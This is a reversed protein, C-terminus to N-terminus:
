RVGRVDRRPMRHVSVWRAGHVGVANATCSTRARPRRLQGLHAHQHSSVESAKRAAAPACAELLRSRMRARSKAASTPSCARADLPSDPRPACLGTCLREARCTRALMGAAHRCSSWQSNKHFPPAATLRSLLTRPHQEHRDIRPNSANTRELSLRHSTAKKPGVAAGFGQVRWACWAAVHGILGVVGALSALGVLASIDEVRLAPAEVGRCQLGAVDHPKELMRPEPGLAVVRQPRPEGEVSIGGPASPSTVQGSGVARGRACTQRRGRRSTHMMSM